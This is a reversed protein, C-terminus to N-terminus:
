GGNLAVQLRSSEMKVLRWCGTQMWQLIAEMASSAAGRGAAGSGTTGARVRSDVPCLTEPLVGELAEALADVLTLKWSLLPLRWDEFARM